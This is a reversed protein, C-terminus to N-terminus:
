ALVPPGRNSNTAVTRVACAYKCEVVFSNIEHKLILLVADADIFNKSFYHDCAACHHDHHNAVIGDGHDHHHHHTHFLGRPVILGCFVAILVWAFRRIHKNHSM